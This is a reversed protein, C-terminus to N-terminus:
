NVAVQPTTYFNYNTCEEVVIEVVLVKSILGFKMERAGGEM